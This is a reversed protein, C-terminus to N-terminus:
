GADAAMVDMGLRRAFAQNEICRQTFGESVTKWKEPSLGNAAAIEEQKATDLGAPQMKVCLAIYDDYSFGDVPAFMPDNTDLNAAEGRVADVEAQAAAFNPNAFQGGADQHQQMAKQVMEEAQKKADELAGM